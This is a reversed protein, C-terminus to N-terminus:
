QWGSRVGGGYNGGDGSIELMSCVWSIYLRRSITSSKYDTVQTSLWSVARGKVSGTSGGVVTTNSARVLYGLMSGLRSIVTRRSIIPWSVAKPEVSSSSSGGGGCKVGEGPIGTDFM